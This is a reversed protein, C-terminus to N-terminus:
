SIINYSGDPQQVEIRILKGTGLNGTGLGHTFAQDFVTTILSLWHRVQGFLVLNFSYKADM